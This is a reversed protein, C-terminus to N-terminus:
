GEICKIKVKEILYNLFEVNTIVKYNIDDESFAKPNHEYAKRIATRINKDVNGTCTNFRTAVVPYINSSFNSVCYDSEVGLAICEKIYSYGIHKPSIGYLELFTIIIKYLEVKSVNSVYNNCSFRKLKPLWYKLNNLDCVFVKDNIDIDLEKNDTLIVFTYAQGKSSVIYHNFFRSVISFYKYDIFIIGSNSNMLYLIIDDSTQAYGIHVGERSCRNRVNYSYNVDESLIIGDIDNETNM